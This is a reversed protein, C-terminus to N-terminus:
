TPPRRLRGAAVLAAGGALIGLVGLTGHGRLSWRQDLLLQAQAGHFAARERVGSDPHTAYYASYTVDRRALYEAAVAFGACGLVSTLTIIRLLTPPSV